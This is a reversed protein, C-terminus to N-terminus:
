ANKELLAQIWENKQNESSLAIQVEEGAENILQLANETNHTKDTTVKVNRVYFYTQPQM